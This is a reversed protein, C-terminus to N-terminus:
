LIIVLVKIVIDYFLVIFLDNGNKYVVFKSNWALSDLGRRDTRMLAEHEMIVNYVKYVLVLYIILIM